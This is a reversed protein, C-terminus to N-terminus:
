KNTIVKARSGFQLTSTSEGIHSSAPTITCIIATRSTGGLAPQLIRTLKSDRYPIHDYTKSSSLRQIVNTLALLSKNIASGEKLRQGEAGTHQIRESGALDVLHLHATKIVGIRDGSAPDLTARAIILSFITHSRSSHENMNTSAINREKSGKALAEFASRANQVPIESVGEVRVSNDPQSLIRINKNAPELLDKIVENYIELYSVKIEYSQRRNKMADKAGRFVEKLALPVIGVDKATGEMTYTKGSATQGYAFITGNFGELASAVIPLAVHDFVTRNAASEDYIRDFTFRAANPDAQM